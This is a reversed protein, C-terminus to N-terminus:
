IVLSIYHRTLMFCYHGMTGNDQCRSSNIRQIKNNNTSCFICPPMGFYKPSYTQPIRGMNCDNLRYFLIRPLPKTYHDTMKIATDIQKLGVLDRQVWKQSIWTILEPPQNVQMQWQRLATTMMKTFFQQRRRHYAFTGCLVGATYVRDGLMTQKM